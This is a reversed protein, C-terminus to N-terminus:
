VSRDAKPTSTVQGPNLLTIKLVREDSESLEESCSSASAWILM